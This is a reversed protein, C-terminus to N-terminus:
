ERRALATRGLGIDELKFGLAFEALEQLGMLLRDPEILTAAVLARIVPIRFFGTIQRREGL